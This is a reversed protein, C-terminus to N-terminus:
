HRAKDRIGVLNGEKIEKQVQRKYMEEKYFHM